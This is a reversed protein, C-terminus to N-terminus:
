FISSLLTKSGEQRTNAKIFDLLIKADMNDYIVKNGIIFRGLSFPLLYPINKNVKNINYKLCVRKLQETFLKYKNELYNRACETRRERSPVNMLDSKTVIIGLTDVKSFTCDKNCGDKDPEGYGDTKFTALARSLIEIEPAKESAFDAADAVIRSYDVLFFFLKRNSTKIIQKAGMRDWKTLNNFSGSTDTAMLNFCEGSIEVMTIPNRVKNKEDQYLNFKMLSVTDDNTSQPSSAKNICEYLAYFYDESRDIGDDNVTRIFDLLGNRSAEYVFSALVCSKGSRPIGMFYIDTRGESIKGCEEIRTQPMEMDPQRIIKILHEPVIGEEILLEDTIVGDNYLNDLAYQTKYEKKYPHQRMDEIIERRRSELSQELEAIKDMATLRFEGIRDELGPYGCFLKLYDQYSKITNNVIVYNEWCGKDVKKLGLHGFEKYYNRYSHINNNTLCHHWHAQEAELRADLEPRKVYNLGHNEIEEKTVVGSLVHEFLVDITHVNVNSLIEVRTM